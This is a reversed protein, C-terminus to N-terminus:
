DYLRIMLYIVSKLFVVWLPIFVITLKLDSYYELKLCLLIEFAFLLFISILFSSLKVLKQKFVFRNKVMLILTDILFCFQLFFVPIFVLFWNWKISQDIRTTLFSLFIILNLSILTASLIPSM